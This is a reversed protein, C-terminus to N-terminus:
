GQKDRVGYAQMGKHDFVEKGIAQQDWTEKGVIREARIGDAKKEKLQTIFYGKFVHWPDKDGYLDVEEESPFFNSSSSRGNHNIFSILLSQFSYIINSM